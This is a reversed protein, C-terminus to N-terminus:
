RYIKYLTLTVNSLLTNSILNGDFGALDMIEVLNNQCPDSAKGNPLSHIGNAMKVPNNNSPLM